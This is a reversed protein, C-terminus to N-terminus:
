VTRWIIRFTQLNAPSGPNPDIVIPTALPATNYDVSWTEQTDWSRRAQGDITWGQYGSNTLQGAGNPTPNIGYNIITYSTTGVPLTVPATTEVSFLNTPAVVTPATGGGGGGPAAQVSGSFFQVRISRDSTDNSHARFSNITALSDLLLVEGTYAQFDNATPTTAPSGVTYYIGETSNSGPAQIIELIANTAGAPPNLADLVGGIPRAVYTSPSGVPDRTTATATLAALMDMLIQSNDLFSWTPTAVSSQTGQLFELLQQLFSELQDGVDDPNTPPSTLIAGTDLNEWVTTVVAPPGPDTIMVRRLRHGANVGAENQSALYYRSDIGASLGGAAGSSLRTAFPTIIAGDTARKVEIVGSQSVTTYGILWPDTAATAQYEILEPDAPVSEVATAIRKLLGILSNTTAADNAAGIAALLSNIDGSDDIGQAVIAATTGGGGGGGAQLERLLAEVRTQWDKSNTGFGLQDM